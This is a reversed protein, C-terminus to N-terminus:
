RVSNALDWIRVIGDDGTAAMYREDPSVRVAGGCLSQRYFHRVSEGTVPDLFFVSSDNVRSISALVNEGPLYQLGVISGWHPTSISEIADSDLDWRFVRGWAGGYLADGGPVFGLSVTNMPPRVLERPRALDHILFVERGNGASAVRGSEADVALAAVPGDAHRALEIAGDLTPLRWARVRGDYHGTIVRDNLVALQWVGSGTDVSHRAEGDRSWVVLRGDQGGSVVREGSFAIGLVFGEHAQWVREPKDRGLTWLAIRGEWGGSALTKSAADFAIAQSGRHTSDDAYDPAVDGVQWVSCGPVLLALATLWALPAPACADPATRM